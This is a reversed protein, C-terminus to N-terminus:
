ELNLGEPIILVPEEGEKQICRLMGYPTPMEATAEKLGILSPSLKVKGFNEKLM